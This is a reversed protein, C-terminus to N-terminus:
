VVSEIFGCSQNEKKGLPWRTRNEILFQVQIKESKSILKSWQKM